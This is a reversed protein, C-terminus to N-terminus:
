LGRGCLFDSLPHAFLQESYHVFQNLLAHPHENRCFIQMFRKVVILYNTFLLKFKYYYTM